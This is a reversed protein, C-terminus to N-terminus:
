MDLKVNYATATAVEGMQSFYACHVSSRLLVGFSNSADYSLELNFLKPSLEKSDYQRLRNVREEEGAGSRMLQIEFEDRSLLSSSTQAEIRKYTSPAKLKSKIAEECASVLQSSALDCGALVLTCFVMLSRFMLLM